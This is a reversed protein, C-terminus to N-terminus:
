QNGRVVQVEIKGEESRYVHIYWPRCCVECDEVFEGYTEPDLSLTIQEWCWPCQIIQIENM